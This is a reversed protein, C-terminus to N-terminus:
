NDAEEVLHKQDLMERQRRKFDYVKETDAVAQGTGTIRDVSRALELDKDQEFELSMQQRKGRVYEEIKQLATKLLENFINQTYEPRPEGTYPERVISMPIAPLLLRAKKDANKVLVNLELRSKPDDGNNVLLRRFTVGINEINFHVLAAMVMDNIAQFLETSPEDETDLRIVDAFSGGTSYEVQYGKDIKFGYIV